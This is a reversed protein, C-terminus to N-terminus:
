QMTNAQKYSSQDNNFLPGSQVRETLLRAEPIYQDFSRGDCKQTAYQQEMWTHITPLVVELNYDLKIINKFNQFSCTAIM